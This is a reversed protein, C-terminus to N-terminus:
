RAASVQRISTGPKMRVTGSRLQGTLTWYVELDIVELNDVVDKGGLFLPVRYGACDSLRLPLAAANAESWQTFFQNALAPERLEDLQEHFARFTLPIELAQGTGPELMLILAEGSQDRAGDLAFQRGLWDYAFPCARQSFQPLSESVLELSRPGSTESHVRYLGGEFSRGAYRDAFEEYGDARALRTEQWATAAVGSDPVFHDAFSDFM